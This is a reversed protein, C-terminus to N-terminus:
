FFDSDPHLLLRAQPTADKKRQTKTHFSLQCPNSIMESL